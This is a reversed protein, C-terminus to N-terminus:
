SAPAARRLILHGGPRGDVVELDTAHELFADAASKAGGWDYYDDLIIFGGPSLRPYIRHLSLYVPEYWDCDIHAFAVPGTLHLTDEFLGAHLQVRDGDVSIGHALFSRKVESLLDEHYGYYTDGAIGESQGSAIVSYRSHAGEPDRESPPPIMGFVDYGAFRRDGDLHAAIVIASGGQAVGAEVFSGPVRNGVVEGLVWEINGLREASLYTLHERVVAAALPSSWAKPQGRRLCTAALARLSRRVSM